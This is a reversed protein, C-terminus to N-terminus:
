NLRIGDGSEFFNLATVGNSIKNKDIRRVFFKVIVGADEM